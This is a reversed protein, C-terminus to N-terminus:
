DNKTTTRNSHLNEWSEIMMQDDSPIRFLQFSEIPEHHCDVCNISARFEHIFGFGSQISVTSRNRTQDIVNVM